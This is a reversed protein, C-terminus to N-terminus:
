SIKARHNTCISNAKESAACATGRGKQATMYLKSAGHEETLDTQFFDVVRQRFAGLCELTHMVSEVPFDSASLGTTDLPM